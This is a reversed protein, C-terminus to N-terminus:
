MPLIGFSSSYFISVITKVNWPWPVFSFGRVCCADNLNHLTLFCVPHGCWLFGNRTYFIGLMSPEFGKNIRCICSSAPIEGPLHTTVVAPLRFM